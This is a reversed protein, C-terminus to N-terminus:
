QATRANEFHALKVRISQTHCYGRALHCHSIRSFQVYKLTYNPQLLMRNTGFQACRTTQIIQNNVSHFLSPRSLMRLPPSAKIIQNNVSHFLSPHSLMRLPPPAQIIQNNVSHFLSPRSLMRLHVEEEFAEKFAVKFAV